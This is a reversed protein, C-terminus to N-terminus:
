EEYYNKYEVIIENQIKLQQKISEMMESLSQYDEDTLGFLVPDIESDILEQFVDKQNDKTIVRWQINKPEFLVPVEINLPEKSISESVVDIRQAKNTSCGALLTILVTLSSLM